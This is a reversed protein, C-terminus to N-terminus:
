KDNRACRPLRMRNNLLLIIVEIYLRISIAEDNWEECHCYYEIKM